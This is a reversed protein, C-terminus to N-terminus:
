EKYFYYWTRNLIIGDVDKNADLIV